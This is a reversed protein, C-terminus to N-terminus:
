LKDLYASSLHRGAPKCVECNKRMSIPWRESEDGFIYRPAFHHKEAGQTGCVECVRIDKVKINIHEIYGIRSAKSKKEYLQTHTRCGNCFYPHVISGSATKATGIRWDHTNCKM